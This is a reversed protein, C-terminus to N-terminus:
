WVSSLNAAMSAQFVAGYRMPSPQDLAFLVVVSACASAAVISKRECHTGAPSDGIHPLLIQWSRRKKALKM